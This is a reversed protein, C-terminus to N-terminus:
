NMSGPYDSIHKKEALISGKIDKFTHSFYWQCYIPGLFPSQHERSLIVLSLFTKNSPSSLCDSCKKELEGVKSCGGVIPGVGFHVLCVGLFSTHNKLTELSLSITSWTFFEVATLFKWFPNHWFIECNAVNPTHTSQKASISSLSGSVFIQHLTHFMQFIKSVSVQIMKRPNGEM